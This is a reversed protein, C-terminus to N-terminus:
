APRRPVFHITPLLALKDLKRFIYQYKEPVIVMDLLGRRGTDFAFDFISIQICVCSLFPKNMMGISLCCISLWIYDVLRRGSLILYFLSIVIGGVIFHTIVVKKCIDLYKRSYFDDFFIRSVTLLFLKIRNM